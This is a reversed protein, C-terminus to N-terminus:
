PTLDVPRIAGVTVEIVQAGRRARVIVTAAPRTLRLANELDAASAVTRHDWAVIRDDARLGARAAPSAPVAEVLRAGEGEFGLDLRLGWAEASASGASPPGDTGPRPPPPVRTLPPGQRLASVLRDALTLLTLAGAADVRAPTDGPTHQERTVGTFLHLVPVGAEALVAQDSPAYGSALLVPHLDLGAAARQLLAPWEPATATGIALFRRDRRLRGLQDLNLYAGVRELPWPPFLVFAEAGLSGAEEGTFLVFAVAGAGPVPPAAAAQRALSLLAAVGSANDDAGPYWAGSGDPVRGLHDYHAGVLTIPRASDGPLWGGLNVLSLAHVSVEAEVAALAALERSRPRRDADLRAQETALDLGLAALAPGAARWSVSLCPIGVSFPRENLQLPVDEAPRATAMLPDNILVFAAAGLDAALAAKRDPDAAVLPQLGLFGPRDGQQAPEHRLAVVVKGRVDQGAYDDYGEAPVRLGYGAFALPAEVHGGSGARFPVFDVGPALETAGLRLRAPGKWPETREVTFPDAYSDGFLPRLGAERLADALYAAALLLGPEGLGRGGLDEAALRTVLAMWAEASPAAVRGTPARTEDTPAAALGAERAVRPLGADDAGAARAGAVAVWAALVLAGVRARGM